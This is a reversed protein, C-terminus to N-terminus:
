HPHTKATDTVIKSINEFPLYYKLIVIRYHIISISLINKMVFCIYKNDM